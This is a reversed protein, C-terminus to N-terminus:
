HFRCSYHTIYVLEATKYYRFLKAFFHVNWGSAGNFYIAFLVLDNYLLKIVAADKASGGLLKNICLAFVNATLAYLFKRRNSRDM